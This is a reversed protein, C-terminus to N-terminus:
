SALAPRADLAEARSGYLRLRASLGTLTFIRRLHGPPCIIELGRESESTQHLAGVLARLGMSDIFGVGCLDIVVTGGGEAVARAFAREVAPASQADLDGHVEIV